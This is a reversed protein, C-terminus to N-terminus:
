CSDSHGGLFATEMVSAGYGHRFSIHAEFSVPFLFHLYCLIGIRKTWERISDSRFANSGGGEGSCTDPLLNSLVGTRISLSPCEFFGPCKAFSALSLFHCQYPISSFLCSM